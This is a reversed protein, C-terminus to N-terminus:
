ALIFAAKASLFVPTFEIVETSKLPIIAPATAAPMTVGVSTTFVLDSWVRERRKM